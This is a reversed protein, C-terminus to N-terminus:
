RAVRRSAAMVLPAEAEVQEDGALCSRRFIVSSLAPMISPEVTEMVPKDGAEVVMEADVYVTSAHEHVCRCIVIALGSTASSTDANQQRAM